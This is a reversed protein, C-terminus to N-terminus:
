PLEGQRELRIAIKNEPAEDMVGSLEWSNQDPTGELTLNFEHLDGFVSANGPAYKTVRIKAKVVGHEVKYSGVYMYSSDGGMVRETELVVIGFGGTARNTVFQVSWMAELM